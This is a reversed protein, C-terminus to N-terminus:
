KQQKKLYDIILDGYEDLDGVKRTFFLLFYHSLFGFSLFFVGSMVFTVISGYHYLGFWALLYIVITIPVNAVNFLYLVFFFLINVITWNVMIHQISQWGCAVLVYGISYVLLGYVQNVLSLFNVINRIM